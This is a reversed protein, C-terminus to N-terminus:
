SSTPPLFRGFLDQADSCPPLTADLYHRTLVHSSSHGSLAMIRPLPVGLAHCASM